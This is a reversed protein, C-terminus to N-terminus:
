IKTLLSFMRRLCLHGKCFDIMQTGYANVTKDSNVRQLPINNQVFINRTTNSELELFHLGYMDSLFEDTAFLDGRKGTRSNFDGMLIIQSNDTWTRLIEAHLEVYPDDNAYKSGIPPLYVVGCLVDNGTM